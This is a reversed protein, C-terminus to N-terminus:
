RCIMTQDFISFIATSEFCSVFRLREVRAKYERGDVVFGKRHTKVPTYTSGANFFFLVNRTVLTQTANCKRKVM